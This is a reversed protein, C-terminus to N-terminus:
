RKRTLAKCLWGTGLKNIVTVEDHPAYLSEIAEWIKDHKDRKHCSVLLVGDDKLMADFRELGKRTDSLYYISENFAIADFKEATSFTNMDGTVFQTKETAKVSALKVAEGLDVGVYKTYLAPNLREQLLGEGCGMDLLSGNPKLYHFYGALVSHHGLEDIRRLWAWEGKAYQEEWREATHNGVIGDFLKKAKELM